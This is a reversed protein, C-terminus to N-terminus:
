CWLSGKVEVHRGPLSDHSLHLLHRRPMHGFVVHHPAEVSRPVVADLDWEGHHVPLVGRDVAARRQQQVAVPAVTHRHGRLEGGVPQAHHVPPKDVGNPVHPPTGVAPVPPIVGVALHHALLVAELVKHRACLEKHRLPVGGLAVDRDLPAGRSAHQHPGRHVERAVPQERRHHPFHGKDVHEVGHAVCRQWEGGGLPGLPAVGDLALFGVVVDLAVRWVVLDRAPPVGVDERRPPECVRPDRVPLRCLPDGGDALM